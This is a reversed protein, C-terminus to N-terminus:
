EFITYEFVCFGLPRSQPHFISKTPSTACTMFFRFINLFLVPFEVHFESRLCEMFQMKLRKLLGILIKCILDNFVYINLPKKLRLEWLSLGDVNENLSFGKFKESHRLILAIKLNFIISQMKKM